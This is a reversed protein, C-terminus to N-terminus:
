LVVSSTSDIRIGGDKMRTLKAKNGNGDEVTMKEIKNSTFFNVADSEVFASWKKIQAQEPEYEEEMTKATENGV